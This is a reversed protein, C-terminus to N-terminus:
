TAPGVGLRNKLRGLLDGRGARGVLVLSPPTALLDRMTATLIDAGLARESAQREEATRIRGRTLLDLAVAEALDLPREQRQALFMARQNHTRELDDPEIRGAVAQLVEGVRDFFAVLNRSSVGASIQLTGGEDHSDLWADVRYALGHRERIQQFLPSSAGGGLLEALLECAAFAPDSRPPTPWGAIVATQDFDQDVHRAGGVYRAPQRVTPKGRPLAGFHAEIREAFSGHELQGAGVIILNAGCYHNAHYATLDDRGVARVQRPAGLIPRGLAQRPWAVADFADQALSEPDDAAEDIEQIIVHRERELEDAPFSPRLVVDALAEIAVPEAQALAEVHFVTHDKTTYANMSAGAREIAMSLSAADRAATGKFAMHELVHSLGTLRQPEDRGGARVFVAIAQTRFAPMRVSAVTLGNALTRTQLDLTDSSTPM